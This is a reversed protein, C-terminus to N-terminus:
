DNLEYKNLDFPLESIPKILSAYYSWPSTAKYTDVSADPVYLGKPNSNMPRQSSNGTFTPPTTSKLVILCNYFSATIANVGVTSLTSPLVIIRINNGCNLGNDGITTLSSNPSFGIFNLNITNFFTNAAIETVNDGVYVRRLNTKNRTETDGSTIINDTTDTLATIVPVNNEIYRLECKFLSYSPKWGKEVLRPLVQSNNWNSAGSYNALCDKPVIIPCGGTEQVSSTYSMTPATTREMDIYSLSPCYRFSPMATVGSPVNIYALSRDYDMSGMTTVGSPMDCSFLFQCNNFAGNGITTLSNPLEVKILANCSYFAQQGVTTLGSPINIDSLNGCSYFCMNPIETLTNPITIKQISSQAFANQTLPAQTITAETLKKTSEYASNAMTAASYTFKTINGNDDYEWSSLNAPVSSGGGGSIQAVYGAYTDILANSPVTVGKAEIADKIDTKASQIRSIETAVSM